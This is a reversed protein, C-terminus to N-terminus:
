PTQLLVAKRIEEVRTGTYAEKPTGIHIKKSIKEPKPVSACSVDNGGFFFSMKNARGCDFLPPPTM